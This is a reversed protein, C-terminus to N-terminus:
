HKHKSHFSGTKVSLQRKQNGAMRALLYQRQFSLLMVVPEFLYSSSFLSIFIEFTHCHRWADIYWRPLRYYQLLCLVIPMPPRSRPRLLRRALKVSRINVVIAFLASFSWRGASAMVSLLELSTGPLPSLIRWQRPSQPPSIALWSALGFVFM